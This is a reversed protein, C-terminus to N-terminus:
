GMSGIVMSGLKRGPVDLYPSGGLAVPPGSSIAPRLNGDFLIARGQPSFTGKWVAVMNQFCKSRKRPINKQTEKRIEQNERRVVINYIM